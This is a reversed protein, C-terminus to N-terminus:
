AIAQMLDRLERLQATVEALLDRLLAFLIPAPFLRLRLVPAVGAPCLGRHFSPARTGRVVVRAHVRAKKPACFVCVILLTEAHSAPGSVGDDPSDELGGSCFSYAEHWCEWRIQDLGDELLKTGEQGLSLRVM